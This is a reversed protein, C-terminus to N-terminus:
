RQFIGHIVELLIDESAVDYGHALVNRMGTIQRWPVEPHSARLEQPLRGAAEGVIEVLRALAHSLLPDSALDRLTKHKGAAVADGAYDLMQRLTVWPDHQPM